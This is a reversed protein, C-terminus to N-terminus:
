FSIEINIWSNQYSNKKFNPQYYDFAIKKILNIELDM